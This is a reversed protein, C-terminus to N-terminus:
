KKNNVILRELISPFNAEDVFTFDPNAYVIIGNQDIVYTARNNYGLSNYSNYIQSIEYNEDNLYTINSTRLATKWLELM